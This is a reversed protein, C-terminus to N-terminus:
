FYVQKKVRGAFLFQKGIIAIINYPHKETLLILFVEMPFLKGLFSNVQIDTSRRMTMRVNTICAYQM